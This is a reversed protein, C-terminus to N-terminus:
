AEVRDRKEIVDWITEILKKTTVPKTIFSDIDLEVMKSIYELEGYASHVIVKQNPKLKKIKKIMELGGMLPMNIDTIILDYDSEQFLELGELGNKADQVSKFIENFLILKNERLDQNDEIYLLRLNETIKKIDKINM